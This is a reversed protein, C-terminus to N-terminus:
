AADPLHLRDTQQRDPRGGQGHTREGDTRPTQGCASAGLIAESAAAIPLAARVHPATMLANKLVGPFSHNYEPTVLGYAAVTTAWQRTHPHTYRGM